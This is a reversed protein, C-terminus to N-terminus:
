NLVFLDDNTGFAPTYTIGSKLIVISRLFSSSSYIKFNGNNYNYMYGNSLSGATSISRVNLSWANESNYLYNRSAIWYSTM